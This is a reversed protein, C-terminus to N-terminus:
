LDFVANEVDTILDEEKVRSQLHERALQFGTPRSWEGYGLDKWISGNLEGLVRPWIELHVTMSNLVVKSLFYWLHNDRIELGERLVFSNPSQTLSLSGLCASRPLCGM